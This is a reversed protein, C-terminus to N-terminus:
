LVSELTRVQTIATDFFDKNAYYTKEWENKISGEVKIIIDYALAEAKQEDLAILMADIQSVEKGYLKKSYFQVTPVKFQYRGWSDCDLPRRILKQACIATRAKQSDNVYFLEGVAVNYGRSEGNKLTALIKVKLDAIMAEAKEKTDPISLDAKSEQAKYELPELQRIQWLYTISGAIVMVLTIYVIWKLAIIPGNNPKQAFQGNEPAHHKNM